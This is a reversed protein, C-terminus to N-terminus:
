AVQEEYFECIEPWLLQQNPATDAREKCLLLADHIVIPSLLYGHRYLGNIRMLGKQTQIRPLNDMFGPRCNAFTRIIHGEAFSKHVSYLASLLELCSRVTVPAMSESEIETAGIVYVDGPKPTIYLQYRPHILRVPRSIQVEPASVWLVEGRVGRFNTLQKKAGVGRCDIVLDFRHVNQQTILKHPKVALVTVGEHWVGGLKKIGCAMSQFLQWNSLCGEEELLTAQSFNIALAPELAMLAAKDLNRIKSAPVCAFGRLRRNFHQWDELDQPHAVVVSGKLQFAVDRGTLAKLEDLLKPWRHLAQRGKSFVVSEARLLESYPALTAAAVMGASAEGTVTDSDFLTVRQGQSLLQWAMLRGLLGAGAIGINM